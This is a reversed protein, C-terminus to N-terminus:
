ETSRGVNGTMATGGMPTWVISDVRVDPDYSISDFLSYVGDAAGENTVTVEYTVKYNGDPGLVPTGALSKEHTIVPIDACATDIEEPMGDGNIDLFSENFLDM